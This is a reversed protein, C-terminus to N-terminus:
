RPFLFTAGFRVGWGDPGAEPGEAWYRVGGFLSVPQNWIRVLKSAIANVPVSWQEADWDYATETQLTLTWANETTYSAFPQLFTRNVDTRADEGAFSWIHNALGGVTWPGRQVLAVGTPGAGWKEGGLLDDTATPLLLVPGVGWIVGGPTPAKPSFFLSQVIDGLGTQTGAGARVDEQRIVPAITRSILNWNEGISFPIVPQVNLVLRSGDGDPGIGDDYNFQFPVSILSAIPNALQQALGYDDQSVAHGGWTGTM